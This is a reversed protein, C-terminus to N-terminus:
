ITIHDIPGLGSRGVRHYTHEGTTSAMCLVNVFSIIYNYGTFESPDSNQM